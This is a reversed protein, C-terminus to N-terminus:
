CGHQLRHQSLEAQISECEDRLCEAALKAKVFSPNESEGAAEAMHVAAISLKIALEVLNDALENRLKCYGKSQPM